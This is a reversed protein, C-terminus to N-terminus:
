SCFPNRPWKMIINRPNDNTLKYILFYYEQVLKKKYKKGKFCENTGERGLDLDWAYKKRRGGIWVSGEERIGKKKKKDSSLDVKAKAEYVFLIGSHWSFPIWGGVAFWINKFVRVFM